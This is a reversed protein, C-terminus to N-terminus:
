SPEAAASAAHTRLLLNEVLTRYDRFADRAAVAHSGLAGDGASPSFIPKRADRALHVVGRYHKVTAICHKRRRSNTCTVPSAEILGYGQRVLM